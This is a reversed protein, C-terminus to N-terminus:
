EEIPPTNYTVGYVKTAITNLFRAVDKQGQQAFNVAILEQAENVDMEGVKYVIKQTATELTEGVFMTITCEGDAFEGNPYVEKNIDILLNNFTDFNCIVYKGDASVEVIGPYQQLASFDPTPDFAFKVQNPMVGEDRKYPTVVLWPLFAKSDDYSYQARYNAPVYNDYDYKTRVVSVNLGDIM